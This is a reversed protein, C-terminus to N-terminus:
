LAFETRRIIQDQYARDLEVFYGSWGWVRVILGRYDEPHKQAALLDERSVSNLQLQHGGRRIFLRVLQAVKELSDPGDFVSSHLEMTLPGGNAARRLDQKTFSKIVSVPGRVRAFLSPSDNAPFPEHAGRGDPTAPTSEGYWIYYMATGTGARFRGGSETRRQELEDAFANLLFTAAMDATDDDNGMKPADYRLHNRLEPSGSFDQSLATRLAEPSLSRDGYVFARVASMSDAATSLGAGHIGINSYRCGESADRASGICGDMMLSAMPAPFVYLNRLRDCIAGADHRVQRTVAHEFDEYAPCRDLDNRVAALVSAPFNLADANVIDTGHGPIIPEWCAAVAYNWADEPRYGWALLAPVIVDDNLYQPFGLGERTLETAQVFRELPTNRDARLNIKPDILKLELSARLMLSSLGNWSDTGDPNRGGLVLSQGNDGQQVGDYLDSDRNLSLFFEEVLELAEEETLRGDALDQAYYPFLTQDLRGLACQYHNASWLGYNLLRVFQLAEELTRAPHEPVAALTRAVARNGVRVAEAQYRGALSSLCGLMEDMADLFRSKELNGGHRKRSDALDNRLGSFGRRLVSAYDPCFNNFDGSEHIWHQAKLQEMESPTFLLPTEPVTRMLAIREEELVVPKERGLVDHVRLCARELSPINGAAFQEALAGPDRAPQRFAHHGRDLILFQRMRRIRDTM